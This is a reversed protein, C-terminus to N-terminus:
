KGLRPIEFTEGAAGSVRAKPNDEIGLVGVGVVFHIKEELTMQSIVKEIDLMDM